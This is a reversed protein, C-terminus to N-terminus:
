TIAEKVRTKQKYYHVWLWDFTSWIVLHTEWIREPAGWVHLVTRLHLSREISSILESEVSLPITDNCEQGYDKSKNRKAQSILYVVQSVLSIFFLVILLIFFYLILFFSNFFFYFLLLTIFYHLLMGRSYSRSNLDHIIAGSNFCSFWFPGKFSPPRM